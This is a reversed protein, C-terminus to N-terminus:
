TQMEPRIRRIEGEGRPLLRWMTGKEPPTRDGWVPTEVIKRKKEFLNGQHLGRRKKFFHVDGGLLDEGPCKKGRKSLGEKKRPLDHQGWGKEGGKPKNNPFGGGRQV